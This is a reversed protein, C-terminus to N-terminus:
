YALAIFLMEIIVYCPKAHFGVDSKSLVVLGYTDMLEATTLKYPKM